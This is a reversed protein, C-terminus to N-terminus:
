AAAVIQPLQLRWDEVSFTPKPVKDAPNVRHEKESRAMRASWGDPVPEGDSPSGRQWIEEVASKLDEEFQSVESQLESGHARHEETLEFLHPLLSRADGQVATFRAVLKSVSALLYEEEDVTGKRGSGIKREMKRKSRSSLKSARSATTPARTYRTFATGPMSIDTMVDVNHLGADETGYFADPEEVKKIRLERIRNLQKRLQDRMENIDEMVQASCELVGPHVIEELLDPERKLTIVRRAESIHNGNVLAIVAQRTDGAYDLLVRAADVYQKKTLLDDSVRYAMDKIDEPSVHERIVIDFLERWSLAREHAVMAKHLKKAEVFALAAEKFERRDFLHDGYKELVIPYQDTGKWIVLSEQHLIHNEAYEMAEDFRDPGALSLNRLASAHRRLHDDIRFRQYYKDMARLERLFPLYERPDKQSHQAIMLVLSFDYMGLATDFLKDADVLFIVYKVAEEVLDSHSERISLLLRLAAEHDSPAKVVYATLISNIFRLRDKRELEGRVADCVASAQESPEVTRGVTTLFLNFHDVDDIQDVFSALRKMFGAQDHKFLISLDVRHKRCTLFAKRYNGADIDQRVVEIVLPRPSITELNGRPMQLVLSMTSPVVTVIRSGREVRRREWSADAEHDQANLRNTVDKIPAFQAEHASTTFIVFSPTVRFSNVNSALSISKDGEGAAYLKGSHALGIFVPGSTSNVHGVTFCFEPFRTLSRLSGPEGEVAYLEGEPHQWVIRPSTQVLRGNIHIMRIIAQNSPTASDFVVIVDSQPETMTTGLAVIKAVDPGPLQLVLQRWNADLDISGTHLLSPEMVKQRGPGIRTHLDWISVSGDEWLTGFVDHSLAFASHAPARCNPPLELRYACMPPPVNQSRFPTLLMSKGDAVAVSGTDIPPSSSSAATEWAYVRQVVGSPGSLVLKLASEPHWVMSTFRAPKNSTCDTDCASTPSIEQKLYWHYNSTTWLQVIDSGSDDGEIWVALVTSDTNWALERVRYGWPKWAAGDLRRYAERLGFEGHRLGNREFFVVDHRGERGRGGGDFGFRQTTAILSGSPRWSLAHELGAVPEATSQLICERDYVRLMRRPRGGDTISSVVFFAGDGRWSIRPLLDDDPSLGAEEQAVPARAAAKGLSGHFQTQKSGWGVNIPADAGFGAPNLPNESLVEYTATMLVLKDGSILVLVTEDPSWGVAQIGEDFSGLVEVESLNDELSMTAIEGGRTIMALTRHESVVKLSVLQSSLGPAENSFRPTTFMSVIEPPNVSNVDGPIRYLELEVDGDANVRESAAYLTDNDVDFALSTINTDRIRSESIRELTLNRM